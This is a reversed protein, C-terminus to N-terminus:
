EYNDLVGVNPLEIEKITARAGTQSGELIIEVFNARVPQTLKMETIDGKVKGLKFPNDIKGNVILSGRAGKANRTNFVIRESIEKIQNFQWDQQHTQMKWNIATSAIGADTYVDTKEIEIIQGNDDGGVIVNENSANFYQAMTRFETPYSYVVWEGTKVSWRLVINTFAEGEVTVDGISWFFHCENGWGSVNGYYSAPIADVWKKINKATLLSIPTPRGGNTIYFGTADRSSSSFFACIGAMSIVSEQSPTGINVLSEPFASNFNWRKMSRQKFIIVYGPVKGFGSIGGGNDEPEMNVFGNGVTWSVVGATAPGSYVIQDPASSKGALYVRDLFEICYLHGTPMNALDFAGGTTIVSAGDYSRPADTGNLLLVSDLFQLFRMKLSATLGTVITTGAIVNYVVSTADNSANITALLKHNTGVNDRFNFLGLIVKGSVLQAGVLSSGWRSVLSGIEEDAVMNMSLKVANQPMLNENINTIQGSSFEKIFQPELKGKAM